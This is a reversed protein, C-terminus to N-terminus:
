LCSRAWVPKRLRLYVGAKVAFSFLLSLLYYMTVSLYEDYVADMMVEIPDLPM